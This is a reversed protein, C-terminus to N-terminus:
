DYKEWLLRNDYKSLTSGHMCITKVPYIERFKELNIRFDEIAREVIWEPIDVISKYKKVSGVKWGETRGKKQEEMRRNKTM